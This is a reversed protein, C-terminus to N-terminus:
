NTSLYNDTAINQLTNAEPKSCFCFLTQYKGPLMKKEMLIEFRSSHLYIKHSKNFTWWILIKANRNFSIAWHGNKQEHKFCSLWVGHCISLYKYNKMYNWLLNLILTFWWNSYLNIYSVKLMQYIKFRIWHYSGRKSNAGWNQVKYM